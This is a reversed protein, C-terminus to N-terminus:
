FVTTAVENGEYDTLIYRKLMKGNGCTMIPIDETITVRSTWNRTQISIQSILLNTQAMTATTDRCSVNKQRRRQNDGPVVDDENTQLCDIGSGTFGRAEASLLDEFSSYNANSM